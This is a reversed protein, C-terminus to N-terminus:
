EDLDVSELRVHQAQPDELDISVEIEL